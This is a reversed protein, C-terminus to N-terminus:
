RHYHLCQVNEEAITSCLDHKHCQATVLCFSHLAIRHAIRSANKRIEVVAVVVVVVETKSKLRTINNNNYSYNM